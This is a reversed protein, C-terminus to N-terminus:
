SPTIADAPGLQSSVQPTEGLEPYKPLPLARASLLRKDRLMGNLWRM